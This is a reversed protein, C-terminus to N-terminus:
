EFKREAAVLVARVVSTWIEYGTRNMHLDDEIFLDPNPLGDELLMPSCVDVFILRDDTECFAKLLHNEQKLADLLHLRAISPKPSLVYVRCDPLDQHVRNVFIRFSDLIELVDDNEVLDNDGEYLLIARPEYPLVIEDMFTLVDHMNSGGFGRRILTLPALDEEITGHWMRMSSSGICLVAGKPAPSIRDDELFKNIDERFREPNPYHSADIQLHALCNSNLSFLSLSLCVLLSYPINIMHWCVLKAAM